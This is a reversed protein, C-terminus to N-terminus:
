AFREAIRNVVKVADAEPNRAGQIVIAGPAINLTKGTPPGEGPVTAKGQAIASLWRVSPDVRSLTRKLPVIAEPGDEGTLLVRPGTVITGAAAGFLGGIAGGVSGLFGSVANAASRVIGVLRNFMSVVGNIAGQIGAFVSTFVGGLFNVVTTLTSIVGQLIGTQTIFQVIAGVVGVIVSIIPMLASLLIRIIGILVQLIPTLVKVAAGLVAGLLQAVQAIIPMLPMLADLVMGIIEILPPLIASVVELVVQILPLFAEAVTIIAPMLAGVLQTVLPAIVPWLQAFADIVQLLVPMLMAILTQVLPALASALQAIVTLVTALVPALAEVLAGALTGIAVLLPGIVSSLAELATFLPPGVVVLMNTFATALPVLAAFLSNLLPTLAVIAGMLLTGIGSALNQLAPILPAMAQGIVNLLEALVGLVNLNAVVGLIGALAPMFATLSTLFQETMAITAPTVLSALAQGAAVFLDVVLPMIREATAFFEALRAQGEESATWSAFSAGIGAIADMFKQATPLAAIMINAIAEGFTIVTTTISTFLPGFGELLKQFNEIGKPSALADFIRGLNEGVTSSFALIQGELAPLLTDTISKISGAMNEFVANTIGTQLEQFAAGLDKFAQLSAQAGETLRAGEEFLGRFAVILVGVGAGAAVFATGLALITGSLASGLVAMQPMAALVAGIILTWQRTNHSLNKWSLGHRKNAASGDDMDPILKKIAGGISGLALRMRIMPTTNGVTSMFARLRRNLTGMNKNNSAINKDWAKFSDSFRALMARLGSSAQKDFSKAFTKGGSDGADEAVRATEPGLADGDIHMNVYATAWENDAM